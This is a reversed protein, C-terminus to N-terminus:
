RRTMVPAPPQSDPEDTLLGLHEAIVPLVRVSARALDEYRRGHDVVLDRWPGKGDLDSQTHTSGAPELALVAVGHPALLLGEHVGHQVDLEGDKGEV